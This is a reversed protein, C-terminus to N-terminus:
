MDRPMGELLSAGEEQETELLGFSVFMRGFLTWQPMEHEAAVRMLEEGIAQASAFQRNFTHLTGAGFCLAHCLSNAHALSRAFRITEENAKLARPIAVVLVPAHAKM